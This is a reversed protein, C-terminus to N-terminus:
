LIISEGILYLSLNSLHPSQYVSATLNPCIVRIGQVETEEDVFNFFFFFSYPLILFWFFFFFDM